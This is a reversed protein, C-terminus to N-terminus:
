FSFKWSSPYWRSFTYWVINNDSMIFSCVIPAQADELRASRTDILLWILDIPDRRAYLCAAVPIRTGSLCVLTCLWKRPISISPASLAPSFLSVPYVVLSFVLVFLFPPLTCFRCSYNYPYLLWGGDPCVCLCVAFFFLFFFISIILFFFLYVVFGTTTTSRFSNDLRPSREPPPLSIWWIM